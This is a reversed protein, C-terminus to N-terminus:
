HGRSWALDRRRQPPPSDCAKFYLHCLLLFLSLSYFANALEDIRSVSIPLSVLLIVRFLWERMRATQVGLSSGAQQRAVRRAAEMLLLWALGILLNAFIGDTLGQGGISFALGALYFVLHGNLCELSVQWQGIGLRHEAWGALPSFLKSLALDDLRTV